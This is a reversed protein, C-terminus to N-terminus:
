NNENRLICFLSMNAPNSLSSHTGTRESTLDSDSVRAICYAHSVAKRGPSSAFQRRRIHTSEAGRLRMLSVDKTRECVPRLDLVPDNTGDLLRMVLADFALSHHALLLEVAEVRLKAVRARRALM